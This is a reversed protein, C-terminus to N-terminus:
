FICIGYGKWVNTIQSLQFPSGWLGAVRDHNPFASTTIRGNTHWVSRVLISILMSFCWCRNAVKGWSLLNRGQRGAIGVLDASARSLASDTPLPTDRM